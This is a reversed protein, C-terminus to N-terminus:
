IIGYTYSSWGYGNPVYEFEQYVSVIILCVFSAIHNNKSKVKKPNFSPSLQVASKNPVHNREESDFSIVYALYGHNYMAGFLYFWGDSLM